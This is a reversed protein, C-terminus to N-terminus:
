SVPPPAGVFPSAGTEPPTQGAPGFWFGVAGDAVRPSLLRAVGLALFAWQAALVRPPASGVYRGLDHLVDKRPTEKRGVALVLRNRATVAEIPRSWRRGPPLEAALSRLVGAEAVLTPALAQWRQWASRERPAGAGSVNGEHVRYLTFARPDLYVPRRHALAAWFLFMSAGVYVRDLGVPETLLLERRVVVTSTCYAWEGWFLKSVERPSLEEFRRLGTRVATRPRDPPRRSLGEAESSTRFPALANRYYAVEPYREAVAVVERLRGPHFLDDDDLLAVLPARARRAAEVLAPGQRGGGVALHVIDRGALEDEWEERPLPTTVITEVEGKPFAQQEVSDLASRLFGRHRFARVLVTVRPLGPRRAPDANPATM